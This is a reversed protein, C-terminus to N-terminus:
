RDNMQGHKLKELFRQTQENRDGSAVPQWDPGRRRLLIGCILVVATWLFADIAVFRPGISVGSTVLLLTTFSSVGTGIAFALVTTLTRSDSQSRLGLARLALWAGVIPLVLGLFAAIM